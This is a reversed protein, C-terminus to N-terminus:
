ILDFVFCALLNNDHRAMATVVRSGCRAGLAERLIQSPACVGDQQTGIIFLSTHSCSHSCPNDCGSSLARGGGGVRGVVVVLTDRELCLCPSRIRNYEDHSLLSENRLRGVSM